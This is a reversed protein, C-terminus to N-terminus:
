FQRTWHYSASKKEFGIATYFEQGSGVLVKEAGLAAVRRIGEVVAARALGRRRYAPQTGVPEFIGMRNREDYWVICFAAFEGDPAVVYLDLDKRYDPAKQLEQYSLLSPWEKPDPHNFGMGFAKRRLELNNEDAMSQLAYGEPLNPEPLNGQIIFVSDYGPHETNKQYGRKQALSQFSEDYDYIPVFLVNKEKNRLNAEAYDLMEDLLFDYSPHRQFFAEGWGPHTTDPHEINVVGVIEGAENEWVGITDEWFRIAKLCDEPSPVEQEYNALMPAVFYRAYNWREIRWNIPKEFMRYTDVLFDRIRLFDQEPRYKGLKTKM